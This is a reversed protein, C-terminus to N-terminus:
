GALPGDTPRGSDSLCDHWHKLFSKKAPELLGQDPPGILPRLCASMQLTVVIFILCWGRLLGMARGNLFRMATILLRLGLGTAVTWSILHLLGMFGVGNTSQSFVWIVPAFGLLLVGCLATCLLLLHLVQRLSQRGGALCTFIYLSPLCIFATLCSGTLIKLPVAWYQHGGAFSGMVVGYALLCVIGLGSLALAVPWARGECIEHVVAAPRKLLLETVLAPTVRGGMPGYDAAFRDTANEEIPMAARPAAEVPNLPNNPHMTVDNM